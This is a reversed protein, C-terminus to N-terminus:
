CRSGCGGQIAPLLLGIGVTGGDETSFTHSAGVVAGHPCGAGGGDGSPVALLITDRWGEVGDLPIVAFGGAELVGSVAEGEESSPGGVAVTYEIATGPCHNALAAEAVARPGIYDRSRFTGGLPPLPPLPTSDSDAQQVFGFGKTGGVVARNEGDPGLVVAALEITGLGPATCRGPWARVEVSAYRRLELPLGLAIDFTRAEGAALRMPIEVPEEEPAPVEQIIRPTVLIVLETEAACQNVVIGQASESASASVILSGILPADRHDAALAAGGVSAVLALAAACTTEIRQM